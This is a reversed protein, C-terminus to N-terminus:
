ARGIAEGDLSGVNSRVGQHINLLQEKCTVICYDGSSIDEGLPQGLQKSFIHRNILPIKSQNSGNLTPRVSLLHNSIASKLASCM